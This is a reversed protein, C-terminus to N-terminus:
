ITLTFNAMFAHETSTVTTSGHHQRIQGVVMPDVKTRCRPHISGYSNRYRIIFPSANVHNPGNNHKRGDDTIGKYTAHTRGGQIRGDCSRTRATSPETEMHKM